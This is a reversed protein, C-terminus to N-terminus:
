TKRQYVSESKNLISFKSNNSDLEELIGLALLGKVSLKNHMMECVKYQLSSTFYILKNRFIILNVHGFEQKFELDDKLFKTNAFLSKDFAIANNVTKYYNTFQSIGQFRSYNKASVELKENEMRGQRINELSENSMSTVIVEVRDTWGSEKLLIALSYFEEGSACMPLWIKVRSSEKIINAIYNNKLLIWFTPDRFLETDGIAIRGIFHDLFDKSELDKLLNEVGYKKNKLFVELRRKLSTLAYDNYDVGHKSKLFGTIQRIERIGLDINFPAYIM